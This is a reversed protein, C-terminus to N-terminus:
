RDCYAGLAERKNRSKIAHARCDGIWTYDIALSYPRKEDPEFYNIVIVNLQKIYFEKCWFDELLFAGLTVQVPIQAENLSCEALL